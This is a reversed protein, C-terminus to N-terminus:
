KFSGDAALPVQEGQEYWRDTFVEVQVYWGPQAGRVVGMADTAEGRILTDDTPSLSEIAPGTSAARTSEKEYIELPQGLNPERGSFALHYSSPLPKIAAAMRRAEEGMGGDLIVYDFVGDHVAAKYAAAGERDQYHFFMPDAIQYQHLNAQFYYRLVTDDVLVRDGPSLRGDFYALVPDVDPWFVFRDIESAKGLWGVVGAVVVVATVGWIVQGAYDAHRLHQVLFLVGAVALPALFILSYNVHKWYDFDARSKWQFLLIVAAGVWLPISRKRLERVALTPAALLALLWYDLRGSFYIRWAQAGPARLSSYGSGYRLLHLLDHAHLIGYGACFAFLPLSFIVFANKGKRLALLVLFPFYIAVLYKCLFSAFLTGAALAWDRKKGSQWAAAYAWIGLAFFCLSGSDRTAIRSVLVAPALMAFVAATGVAVSKTFVRSAFGTVAALTVMGLGAALERLGALGGIKDAVAAMAPWLYWGFSWQLPTDLPAEFHRTLFMRGYIVYISEDMYATAYHPDRMRLWLAAVAIIMLALGRELRFHEEHSEAQVAPAAASESVPLTAM